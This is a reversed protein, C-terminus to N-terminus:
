LFGSQRTKEYSLAILSQADQLRSVSDLLVEVDGVGWHGINAVDRVFAPPSDIDSYRLKLWIRLGSKLVHVCCFIGKSHSYGVYKKLYRRTVGAPDLGRCFKDVARFLETVERPKGGLHHEETYDEPQSATKGFAEALESPQQPLVTAAANPSQAWLRKLGEKVQIPKISEDDIESRILRIFSNPPNLVLRELAKAIKATTFVQEGIRDLEGSEMSNRSLRNLQEAIQAVSRGESEKPDISVEFLLKDPASAKVTSKYVKYTVGNTLVCWEVGANAAYGVVQTVAKVDTLPDGLAKAEIFMVPRKDIKPAYDVSKGDITPYELQVESPDRVDWGLAGLMRDVFITRTPIEKLNDKRHRALLLRLHEICAIIDKM